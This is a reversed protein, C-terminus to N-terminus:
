SVEVSKCEEQCCTREALRKETLAVYAHGRQQPASGGAAGVAALFNHAIIFDDNPHAARRQQKMACFGIDVYMLKVISDVMKSSRIAPTTISTTLVANLGTNPLDDLAFRKRLSQLKDHMPQGAGLDTIETGPPAVPFGGTRTEASTKQSPEVPAPIPSSFCSPIQQVVM